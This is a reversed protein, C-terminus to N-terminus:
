KLWRREIAWACIRHTFKLAAAKFPVAVDIRPLLTM